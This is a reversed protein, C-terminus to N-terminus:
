IHYILNRLSSQNDNKDFNSPNNKSSNNGTIQNSHLRYYLLVDDHIYFNFGNAIARKWLMLDEMPIEEGNYRNKEWFKKSYAVVPHAIVNHNFALNKVIDTNSKINKYHTIQDISDIEEVYCFDSSVIDYGSELKEIQKEIRTPHYYDDLNTNFVYDCGDNFAEDIIMNMALAHNDLEINKFYHKDKDGEFLRYNDGGYNIEYIKFNNVTQNIISKICKDIWNPNYISRINKHFFIVGIKKNKIGM